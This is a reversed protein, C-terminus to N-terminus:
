GCQRPTHPSHRVCQQHISRQSVHSAVSEYANSAPRYLSTLIQRGPVSTGILPASQKAQGDARQTRCTIYDIQSDTDGTICTAKGGGWTNLATLGHDQMITVLEHADLQRIAKPIMSSGVHPPFATLSTNLDGGIILTNRQPSALMGKRIARWIQQRRNIAREDSDSGRWVHQYINLIDVSNEDIHLRVHQVRGQAFHKTALKPRPPLPAQTSSCRCWCMQKRPTSMKRTPGTPRRASYSMGVVM